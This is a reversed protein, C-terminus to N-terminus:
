ELSIMVKQLQFLDTKKQLAKEPSTVEVENFDEVSMDVLSYFLAKNLFLNFYHILSKTLTDLVHM